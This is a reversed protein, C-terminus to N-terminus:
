SILFLLVLPVNRNIDRMLGMFLPTLEKLLQKLNGRM